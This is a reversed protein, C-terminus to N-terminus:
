DTKAPLLRKHIEAMKKSLELMRKDDASGKTIKGKTRQLIQQHEEQLAFYEDNSFLVTMDELEGLRHRKAQDLEKAYAANEPLTKYGWGPSYDATVKPTWAQLQKILRGSQGKDRLLSNPGIGGLENFLIGYLKTAKSFNPKDSKPPKFSELDTMARVQGAALLFAGDVTRKATYCIQSGYFLQAANMDEARAVEQECDQASAGKVAGMSALLNDITVEAAAGNSSLVIAVSLWALTARM